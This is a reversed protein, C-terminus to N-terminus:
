PACAVRAQIHVHVRVIACAILAFVALGVGAHGGPPLRVLRSEVFFLATTRLLNGAFVLATTASWGALTRRADLRGFASLAFNLYLGTWLMKVGACPADVSILDGRWELCTGAAIVPFGAGSIVLASIRATVLRVPYGAYFQLSAVLPLSLVVLGILGLHGRAAPHEPGGSLRASAVVPALAALALAARALPPLHAFALAYVAAVAASLALARPSVRGSRGRVLVFALATALALVGCPEDSGDTVRAVYWRWVPAFALCQLTLASALRM